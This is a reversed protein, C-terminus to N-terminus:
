AYQVAQEAMPLVGAPGSFHYEAGQKIQFIRSMLTAAHFQQASSLLPRLIAAYSNVIRLTNVLALQDISENAIASCAAIGESIATITPETISMTNTDEQSIALGLEKASQGFAVCLRHMHVPYPTMKGLEWQGYTNRTVGAVEAAEKQSLGAAIRAAILTTRKM